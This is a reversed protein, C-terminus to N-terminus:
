VTARVGPLVGALPVRQAAVARRGRLSLLGIRFAVECLAMLILADSWAAASTIDHAVSFRTLSAGGASSSAWVEFGFRFGMSAVWLTAAVVGAKILAHQGGDTRVRTTLGGVVGLAVGVAAFGVVLPLDHGATPVAKLYRSAAWGSLVLPLLVTRRDLRGERVQRLVLLLLAIDLAYDSFTM